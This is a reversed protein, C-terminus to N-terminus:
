LQVTPPRPARGLIWEYVAQFDQAVKPWAFRQEVLDRGRQGMAHRSDGPMAALAHLGEQLLALRRPQLCSIVGMGRARRTVECAGKGPLFPSVGM